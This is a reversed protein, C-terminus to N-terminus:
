IKDKYVWNSLFIFTIIPTILGIGIVAWQPNISLTEQTIFVWASNLVYGFTATISFKTFIALKNDQLSTSFTINTQGWYSFLFACLFAILNATQPPTIALELFIWFIAAHILTAILGVSAFKIIVELFKSKNQKLRIVQKKRL